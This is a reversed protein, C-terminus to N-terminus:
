IISDAHGELVSYQVCLIVAIPQTKKKKEREWPQVADASTRQASQGRKKVPRYMTGKKGVQVRDFKIVLGLDPM